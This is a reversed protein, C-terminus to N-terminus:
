VEYEQKAFEKICRLLSDESVDVDRNIYVGSWDVEGNKDYEFIMCEPEFFMELSVDAYFKKGNIYFDCCYGGTGGNRRINDIEM